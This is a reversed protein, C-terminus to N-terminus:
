NKAGHKRAGRITGEIVVEAFGAAPSEAPPYMEDSELPVGDAGQELPVDSTKIRRRIHRLTWNM